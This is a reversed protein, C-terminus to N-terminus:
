FFVQNVPLLPSDHTQCVTLLSLSSDGLLEANPDELRGAVTCGLRGERWLKEEEGERGRKREEEVASTREWQRWCLWSPNAGKSFFSVSRTLLQLEPQAPAETDLSFRGLTPFHALTVSVRPLYKVKGDRFLGSGGDGGGHCASLGQSRLSPLPSHRSAWYLM